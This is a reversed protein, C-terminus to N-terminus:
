SQYPNDMMEDEDSHTMISELLDCQDLYEQETQATHRYTSDTGASFVTALYNPHNPDDEGEGGPYSGSSSLTPSSNGTGTGTNLPLSPNLPNLPSPSPNPLSPPPFLPAISSLISFCLDLATFPKCLLGRGGFAQSPVKAVEAEERDCLLIV